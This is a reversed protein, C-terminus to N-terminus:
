PSTVAPANGPAPQGRKVPPVKGPLLKLCAQQAAQFQPSSPDLGTGPGIRIGIGGNLVKPDPFNPLGHARMCQSFKLAQALMKVEQAPTPGPPQYAACARSAAQFVPSGPNLDSGPGGNIVTNGQSNPEPFDLVGHSRMCKSYALPSATVARGSGNDSKDSGLHAVTTSSPGGSCAAALVGLNLAFAITAPLLSARRSRAGFRAM